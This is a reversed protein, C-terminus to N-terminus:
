NAHVPVGRRTGYHSSNASGFPRKWGFTQRPSGVRRRTIIPFPDAFFFSLAIKRWITEFFFIWKQFINTISMKLIKRYVIWFIDLYMEDGNLKLICKQIKYNRNQCYESCPFSSSKKGRERKKYNCGIQMTLSFSSSTM